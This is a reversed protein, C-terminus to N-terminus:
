FRFMAQVGWNSGVHRSTIPRFQGGPSFFAQSIVYDDDTVNNIYGMLQWREAEVGARIDVISYEFLEAGEVWGPSYGGRHHNRRWAASMVFNMGASIPIRYTGFLTWNTSTAGPIPSGESITVFAGPIPTVETIEGDIYGFSGGITLNEIPRVAFDLEFGDTEGKGLNQFFFNFSGFDFIGGLVDDQKLRFLAANITLKNDFWSTKVGLEINLSTEQGYPIIEAALAPDVDFNFGTNYGGARFGENARLYLNVDDTARFLIGAGWSTNDWDDNRDLFIGTSGTRTRAFDFDKEDSTRRVSGILDLRETITWTLEGFASWSKANIVAETASIALLAGSPDMIHVPRFLNLDEKYYNLGVVYQLSNDWTSVLRLEQFFADVDEDREITQFALTKDDFGDQDSLSDLKYERFSSLSSVTGISTEWNITMGYLSFDKQANSPTDRRIDTKAEGGIEEAAGHNEPGKESSSDMWFTVDVNDSAQWLASARFGAIEQRDQWEDLTTNFYEGENQDIYWTALRVAFKGESIPINVVGRAETRDFEGYGVQVSGGFDELDPANYIFNVAGGVANRGYLAGQPGRLVEVRELDYFDSFVTRAGGIYYGNQYVGTGQEIFDLPLGVGRISITDNISFAGSNVLANPVMDIFEDIRRLDLDQITQGTIATVTIPVDQLSQERKSATVIIEELRASEDSSDDAANAQAFVTSTMLMSLLLCTSITMSRYM